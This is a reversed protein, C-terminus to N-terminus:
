RILPALLLCAFPFLLAATMGLYALFTVLWDRATFPTGDNVYRNAVVITRLAAPGAMLTMVISAWPAQVMLMLSGALCCLYLLGFLPWLNYSRLEKPPAGPPPPGYHVPMPAGCQFCREAASTIRPARCAPCVFDGADSKPPIVPFM